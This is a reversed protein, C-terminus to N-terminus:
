EWYVAAEGTIPHTVVTYTVEEAQLRVESSGGLDAGCHACYRPDWDEVYSKGGCAPCTIRCKTLLNKM